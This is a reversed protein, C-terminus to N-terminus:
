NEIHFSPLHTTGQHVKGIWMAETKTNNIKLRSIKSFSDLADLSAQLSKESGDLFLTTDDAYQSIKCEIGNINTKESRM